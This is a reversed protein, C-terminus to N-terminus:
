GKKVAQVEAIISKDGRRGNEGLRGKVETIMQGLVAKADGIVGYSTPYDKSIDTEDITVQALTKGVPIPTIFKSITFSTGIGFVLDAKKLFHDVM